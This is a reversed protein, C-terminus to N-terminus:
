FISSVNPLCLKKWKFYAGNAYIYIFAKALDYLKQFAAL